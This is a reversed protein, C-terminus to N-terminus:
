AGRLTPARWRIYSIWLSLTSIHYMNESARQRLIKTPVASNKKVVLIKLCLNALLPLFSECSAEYLSVVACMHAM